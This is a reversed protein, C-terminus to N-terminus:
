RAGCRRTAAAEATEACERRRARRSSSACRGRCRTWCARPARARRARRRLVDPRRVTPGSAITSLDDGVVDSLVLTVVRAPHAARALGGGKLRSLHKRVANLEQITAGSRLLLRTTAAKDELRSARSPRRCCPRPAARSCCWCCTTERRLGAALDEIERAAALGRADPVPHGASLLRVRRLAGETATSVAIGGILHAGLAAEAASRWRCRPRARPSSSRPARARPRSARRGVGRPAAACRSTARAGAPPTPPPSHRACSRGPPAGCGPAPRAALTLAPQRPDLTSLGSLADFKRLLTEAVLPFRSDDCLQELRTLAASPRGDRKNEDLIGAAQLHEIHRLFEERYFSSLAARRAVDM